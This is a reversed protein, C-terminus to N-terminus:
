NINCNQDFAQRAQEYGSDLSTQLYPCAGLNDGMAIFIIAKIYEAKGTLPNMENLVVDINKEANILGKNFKGGKSSINTIRDIMLMPDTPVRSHKETFLDGSACKLLDKKTFSNKQSM